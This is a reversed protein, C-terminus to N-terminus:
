VKAGTKNKRTLRRDANELQRVAAKALKESPPIYTDLIKSTTEIDHGSVSAVQNHTSGAEAFRLMSTRRLDRFQLGDLGAILTVTRWEHRFYDSKLPKGGSTQLVLADTPKMEGLRKDLASKLRSHCPIVVTRKTKSQVFTLRKGDYQRRELRLIDGQRQATYVALLYALRIYPREPRGSAADCAALFRAEAEESWRQNRPANIRLEPKQAPNDQRFGYNIAQFLLRRLIVIRYNATRKGHNHTLKDRYEFVFPRTMRKVPLHGFEGRMREIHWRYDKQSRASLGTFAQSAYYRLALDDFSGPTVQRTETGLPPPELQLARAYATAFAPDNFAPLDVRPYGKRRFYNYSRGRKKIAQVYPWSQMAACSSESHILVLMKALPRLLIQCGAANGQLGNTSRLQIGANLIQYRSQFPM